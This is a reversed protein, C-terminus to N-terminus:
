SQLVLQDVHDPQFALNIHDKDEEDEEPVVQDAYNLSALYDSSNHHPLTYGHVRRGGRAMQQIQGSPLLPLNNIGMGLNAWDQPNFSSQDVGTMAANGNGDTNGITSSLPPFFSAPTYVNDTSNSTERSVLPAYSLAPNWQQSLQNPQPYDAPSTSGSHQSNSLALGNTTLPLGLGTGHDYGFQFNGAQQAAQTRLHDSSISHTQGLPSPRIPTNSPNATMPNLMVMGM